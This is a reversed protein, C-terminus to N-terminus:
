TEERGRDGPKVELAKEFLMVAYAFRKKSLAAHGLQPGLHYRPRQALHRVAHGFRRVFKATHKVGFPFRDAQPRYCNPFVWRIGPAQMIHM